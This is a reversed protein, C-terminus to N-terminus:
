ERRAKQIAQYFEDSAFATVARSLAKDLAERIVKEYEATAGVWLPNVEVGLIEKEWLTNQDGHARLRLVVSVEQWVQMYLDLWFKRISGELVADRHVPTAREGPSLSEERIPDYGVDILAEVFYDTLLSQIKVDGNTAIHGWPIGMWGGRKTGIYEHEEQREDVFQRVLIRGQRKEPSSPLPSHTVQVKTVGLACGSLLLSLISGLAALRVLGTM